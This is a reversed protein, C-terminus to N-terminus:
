ARQFTVLGRTPTWLTIVLHDGAPAVVTTVVEDVDLRFLHSGPEDHEGLVATRVVPDHEEVALGALKADGPWRGPADDRVDESHSHLAYRPDRRLDEAKRSGGMSGLWVAREAFVVETGSIRPSGARRLTAVTHHRHARFRAEVAGALEPAATVVEGWSAV